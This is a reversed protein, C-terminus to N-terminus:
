VSCPRLNLLNKKAYSSIIISKKFPIECLMKLVTIALTLQLTLIQTRAEM